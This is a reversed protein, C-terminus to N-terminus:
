YSGSTRGTQGPLREYANDWKLIRVKYVRKSGLNLVDMWFTRCDANQPNEVAGSEGLRSEPQPVINGMNVAWSAQM